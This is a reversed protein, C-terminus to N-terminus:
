THRQTRSVVNCHTCSCYMDHYPLASNWVRKHYHAHSVGGGFMVIHVPAIWIPPSIGMQYLGTHSLMHLVMMINWHTHYSCPFLVVETHSWWRGCFYGSFSHCVACATRFLWWCYYPRFIIVSIQRTNLIKIWWRNCKPMGIPYLCSYKNLSLLIAWPRWLQEIKDHDMLTKWNWSPKFGSASMATRWAHDFNQPM